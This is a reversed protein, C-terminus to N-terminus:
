PHNQQDQRASHAADRRATRWYDLFDAVLLAACFLSPLFWISSLALIALLITVLSLVVAILLHHNAEKRCSTSRHDRSEKSTPDM